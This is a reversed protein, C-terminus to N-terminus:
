FGVNLGLSYTRIIPAGNWDIGFQLQNSFQNMEPDLGSYSTFTFPNQVQAFVRISSISGKFTNTLVETPVRYGLVINQIRVFDGKEVFRSNSAGSQWISADQGSYLKPVETTQGAETWRGLM